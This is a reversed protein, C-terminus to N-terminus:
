SHGLGTLGSAKTGKVEAGDWPALGCARSCHQRHVRRPTRGHRIAPGEDCLGMRIEGFTQEARWLETLASLNFKDPSM